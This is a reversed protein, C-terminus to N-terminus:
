IETWDILFGLRRFLQDIENKREPVAVDFFICKTVDSGEICDKAEKLGLGTMTRFEKIAEILRWTDGFKTFKKMRWTIAKATVPITVGSFRAFQEAANKIFEEKSVSTDFELRFDGQAFTIKGKPFLM